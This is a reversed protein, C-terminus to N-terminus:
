QAAVLNYIPLLIGSVIVAVVGGLVLMIVPELLQTLTGVTQEAEREYFAAVKMLIDDITSTQEGIEVMQSVLEPIFNPYDSLAAGLAQGNEVNDAVTLLVKRYATNGIADATIRLSTVIPVGGKVLIAFNRAFRELYVKQLIKGFMPLRMKVGDWWLRGLPKSTAYKFVIFIAALVVLFVWWYGSVVNTVVILGRTTIPLKAQTDTIMQLMKPMVFTFLLALVGVMATIVFIPYTLAGKVKRRLNYDKELQDAVYTLSKDLTGSVEGTKILSIFLTNFVNPYASLAQSLPLGGEIDSSVKKIIQKFRPNSMQKNLVRLSGAIPVSADLLIALERSFFVLDKASIRNFFPLVLPKKESKESQLLRFPPKQTNQSEINIENM